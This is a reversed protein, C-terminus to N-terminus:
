KVKGEIQLQMDDRHLSCVVIIKSCDYCRSVWWAQSNKPHHELYSNKTVSYPTMSGPWYQNLYHSQARLRRSMVQVFTSEVAPYCFCHEWCLDRCESFLFHQWNILDIECSISQSGTVSILKLHIEFRRSVFSNVWTTNVEKPRCSHICSNTKVSIYRYIYVRM